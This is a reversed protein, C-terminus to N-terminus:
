YFCKRYGLEVNDGPAESKLRFKSNLIRDDTGYEETILCIHMISKFHFM